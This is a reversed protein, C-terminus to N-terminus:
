SQLNAINMELFRESQYHFGYTIYDKYRFRNM